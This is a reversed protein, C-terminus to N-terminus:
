KQTHSFFYLNRTVNEEIRLRTIILNWVKEPVNEIGSGNRTVHFFINKQLLHLLSSMM